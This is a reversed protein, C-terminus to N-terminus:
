GFANSHVHNDKSIGARKVQSLSGDADATTSAPPKVPEAILLFQALIVRTVGLYDEAFSCRQFAPLESIPLRSWLSNPTTDTTGSTNGLESCGLAPHACCRQVCCSCSGSHLWLTCGPGAACPVQGQVARVLSPM